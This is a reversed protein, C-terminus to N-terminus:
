EEESIFLLRLLYIERGSVTIHEVISVLNLSECVSRHRKTGTDTPPVVDKVNFNHFAHQLFTTQPQAQRNLQEYYDRKQREYWFDKKRFDEDRLGVEEHRYDQDRFDQDRPYFSYHGLDQDSEMVECWPTSEWYTAGLVLICDVGKYNVLPAGLKKSGQGLYRQSQM